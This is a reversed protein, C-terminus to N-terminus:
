RLCAESPVTPTVAAAGLHGGPGAGASRGSDPREEPDEASGPGSVFPRSSLAPNAALGRGWATVTSVVGPGVRGRSFLGPQSATKLAPFFDLPQWLSGQLHGLCRGPSNPLSPVAHHPPASLPGGELATQSLTRVVLRLHGAPLAAKGLVLLLDSSTLFELTCSFVREASALSTLHDRM